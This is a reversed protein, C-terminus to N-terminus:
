VKELEGKGLEVRLEEFKAKIAKRDEYEIFDDLNIIFCEEDRTCLVIDDIKIEIDELDSIPIIQETIRDKYSIREDTWEIFQGTLKKVSNRYYFLFGILLLTITFDAISGVGKFIEPELAFKVIAMGLYIWAFWTFYKFSREHRKNKIRTM